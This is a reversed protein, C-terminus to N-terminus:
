AFIFAVLFCWGVWNSIGWFVLAWNQGSRLFVLVSGLCELAVAGLFTIM